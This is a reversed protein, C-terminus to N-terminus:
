SLAECMAQIEGITKITSVVRFHRGDVTFLDDRQINTDDEGPHGKIGFVIATQHGSAGAGGEYESGITSSTFELRVTQEALATAERVITIVTPKDLIRRWAAVARDADPLADTNTNLWGGFDLM